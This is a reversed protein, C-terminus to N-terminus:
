GMVNISAVQGQEYHGTLHCAMFWEGPEDIMVELDVTEGPMVTVGTVDGHHGGEGEDGHDDHDGELAFEEQMHADGIMAEHKFQGNNTYRFIVPVGVEIDVTEPVYGFDVMEIEIVEDAAHEESSGMGSAEGAGSGDADSDHDEEAMPDAPDDGTQQQAVPQKEDSAPESGAGLYLITGGLLVVIGFVAGFWNWGARSRTRDTPQRSGDEREPDPRVDSDGM